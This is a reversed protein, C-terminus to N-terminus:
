NPKNAVTFDSELLNVTPNYLSELRARHEGPSSYDVFLFAALGGKTDQSHLEFPVNQGPVFEWYWSKFGTPFNNRFQERMEFWKAAPLASLQKLLAADSPIVLEAKVPSNNNAALGM